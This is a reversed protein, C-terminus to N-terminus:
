QREQKVSGRGLIYGSLGGLLASLEKGELIHLIGFLIIAIVLSFLTVFQIGSDGAFITEQIKTSRIAIVFFGVIVAGVLAGFVWTASDTYHGNLIDEQLLTNQEDEINGITNNVAEMISTTAQQMIVLQASITNDASSSLDQAQKLVEAVGINIRVQLQRSNIIDLLERLRVGNKTLKDKIGRLTNLEVARDDSRQGIGGLIGKNGLNHADTLLQYASDITSRAALVPSWDIQLQGAFGKALTQPDDLGNTYTSSQQSPSPATLGSPTPVPSIAPAPTSTPPASTTSTPLPNAPTSTDATAFTEVFILFFIIALLRSAVEILFSLLTLRRKRMHSIHAESYVAKTAFLPMASM